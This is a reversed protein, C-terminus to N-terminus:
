KEKSLVAFSTQEALTALRFYEPCLDKAQRMALRCQECSHDRLEKSAKVAEVAASLRSELSAFAARDLCDTDCNSEPGCSHLPETSHRIPHRDCDGDSNHDRECCKMGPSPSSLKSIATDFAAIHGKAEGDSWDGADVAGMYAVFNDRIAKGAKVAVSLRSQYEEWVPIRDAMDAQLRAIEANREALEAEAKEARDILETGFGADPDCVIRYKRIEENAQALASL